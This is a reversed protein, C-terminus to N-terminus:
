SMSERFVRRAGELGAADVTFRCRDAEHRCADQYAPSHFWETLPPELPMVQFGSQWNVRRGDMDRVAGAALALSADTLPLAALDRVLAEFRGQEGPDLFLFLRSHWFISADHFFKPLAAVGHRGLDRAVRVAVSFARRLVGLGPHEQLPLRPHSADFQATPDQERLWYVVLLDVPLAGTYGCRASSAPDLSVLSLCTDLLLHSHGDRSAHLRLHPLATGDDLELCPAAFGRREVAALVGAEAFMAMLAREDYRGLLLFGPSGDTM